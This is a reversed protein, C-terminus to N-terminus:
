LRFWLVDMPAATRVPEVGALKRLRSFRGDAAVTLAARVEHLANDHDRYRVGKVVGGEEVLEQVNALMTLHFSPFQKAEAAMFDLFKVQPMMTVYPFRTRLRRLDALTSPGYPTSFTLAQVRGHPIQLLRDALGLQDLVEMVAPHITDGRVDRDFAPRSELLRLPAGNRALLYALVVGGPGGGVVCCTTQQAPSADPM